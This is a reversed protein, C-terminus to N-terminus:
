FSFVILHWVTNTYDVRLVQAFQGSNLHLEFHALDVRMYPTYSFCPARWKLPWRLSSPALYKDDELWGSTSPLVGLSM